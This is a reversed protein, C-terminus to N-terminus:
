LREVAYGAGRLLAVLGDEGLLHMAGVVVLADEDKGGDDLQRKLRPLWALNRDRNIRAYLAPYKEALEALTEAELGAADGARWLAHLRNINEEMAAADELTDALSQQQTRADMQEFIAIQEAGTELGEVAKGARLSRSAFHRDLGNQPDLGLLQMETTSITLAVFWTDMGQLRELPAGRRAAWAQLRAWTEPPLSDQLTRGDSRLAARAMAQGLAAGELEQPSLEFLVVEADEFALGTSAALPYDDDRLMHFSGLLYLHNDGDSVKWLLPTPPEARACGAVLAACLALLVFMPRM